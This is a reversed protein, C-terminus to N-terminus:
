RAIMGDKDRREIFLKGIKIGKCCVCLVNEM